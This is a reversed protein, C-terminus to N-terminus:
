ESWVWAQSFSGQFEPSICLSYLSASDDSDAASVRYMTKGKLLKLDFGLDSHRSIYKEAEAATRFTAVILHYKADATDIEEPREEPMATKADEAPKQTQILTEVPPVMSAKDTAADPRLSLLVWAAVAVVIMFCAATRAFIKNVPIYYNRKTDFRKERRPSMEAKLSDSETMLELASSEPKSELAPIASESRSSVVPAPFYGLLEAMRVDSRQPSFLLTGEEGRSLIGLHGLTAEREEDLLRLLDKVDRMLLDRGEAYGVSNKRAYSNALLGDDHSLAANFRVERRMPMWAQREVDFHAAHRVNIFAGVGPVVVCDHRLLLYEM